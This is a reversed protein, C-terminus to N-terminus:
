CQFVKGSRTLDIVNSDSDPNVNRQRKGFRKNEANNSEQGRKMKFLKIIKPLTPNSRTKAKSKGSM